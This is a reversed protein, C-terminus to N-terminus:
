KAFAYHVFNISYLYKPAYPFLIANDWNEM